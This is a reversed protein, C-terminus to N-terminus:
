AAVHVRRAAKSEPGSQAPTQTQAATPEVARAVWRDAEIVLAAPTGDGCGKSLGVDIRYVKGQCASNIGADQITHGVVVRKAGRELGLLADLADCACKSQDEHGIHRTWIPASRGRLSPPLRAPKPTGPAPPPPPAGGPPHSSPHLPSLPSLPHPPSSSPSSAGTRESSSASGLSGDTGSGGEGGTGKGLGPILGRLFSGPSPGAGDGGGRGGEGGGQRGVLWDFAEQNIVELGKEAHEPLAGGHVFLTSGVHAFVNRRTLFRLTLEGSGPALAANRAARGDRSLARYRSVM